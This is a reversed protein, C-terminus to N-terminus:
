PQARVDAALAARADAALPSRELHRAFRRADLRYREGEGLLTMHAYADFAAAFAAAGLVRRTNPFARIAEARRKRILTGAYGALAGPDIERLTRVEEANLGFRAQFAEPDGALSERADREVFLAALAAQLQALAM